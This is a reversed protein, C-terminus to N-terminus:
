VTIPLLEVLILLVFLWREGWVIYCLFSWSAHSQVDLDQITVTMCFTAPNFRNIPDCGGGWLIIELLLASVFLCYFFVCIRCCVLMFILSRTANDIYTQYMDLKTRLLCRRLKYHNKCSYLCKILLKFFKNFIYCGMESANSTIYIVSSINFCRISWYL